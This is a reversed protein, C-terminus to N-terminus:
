MPLLTDPHLLGSGRGVPSAKAAGQRGEAVTGSTTLRDAQNKPAAMQPGRGGAFLVLAEMGVWISWDAGAGARRALGVPRQAQVPCPQAHHDAAAQLHGAGAEGPMTKGVPQRTGSPPSKSASSLPSISGASQANPAAPSRPQPSAPRTLSPIMPQLTDPHLLLFGPGDGASANEAVGVGAGSKL